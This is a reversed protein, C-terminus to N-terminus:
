KAEAIIAIIRILSKSFWLIENCNLDYIKQEGNRETGDNKVILVYCSSYVKGRCFEEYIGLQGPKLESM